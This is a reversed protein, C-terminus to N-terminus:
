MNNFGKRMGKVYGVQSDVKGKVHTVDSPKLHM